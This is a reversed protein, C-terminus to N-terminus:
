WSRRKNNFLQLVVQEFCDTGPSGSLFKDSGILMDEALRLAEQSGGCFALYSAPRRRKEARGASGRVVALRQRRRYGRFDKVPRGGRVLPLSKKM